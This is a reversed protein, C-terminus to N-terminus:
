SNELSGDTLPNIRALVPVPLILFVYPLYRYRHCFKMCYFCRYRYLNLLIYTLLPVSIFFKEWLNPLIEVPVPILSLLLRIRLRMCCIHLHVTTRSGVCLTYFTGLGIGTVRRKLYTCFWYLIPRREKSHPAAYHCACPAPDPVLVAYCILNEQILIIIIACLTLLLM